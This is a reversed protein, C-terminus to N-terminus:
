RGLDFIHTTVILFVVRTSAKLLDLEFTLLSHEFSTDQQRKFDVNNCRCWLRGYRM